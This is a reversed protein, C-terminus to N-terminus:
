AGLARDGLQELGLEVLSKLVQGDVEEAGAPHRPPRALKGRGGDPAEQAGAGVGDLPAGGLDHAVDEPLSHEAQRLLRGDVAVHGPLVDLARLLLADPPSARRCPSIACCAKSARSRPRTSSTTSM